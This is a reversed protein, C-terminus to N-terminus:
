KGLPAKKFEEVACCCRIIRVIEEEKLDPYRKALERRIEEPSPKWYRAPRLPPIEFELVPGRWLGNWVTSRNDVVYVTGEGYRYYSHPRLLLYTFTGLVFVALLVSIVAVRSM